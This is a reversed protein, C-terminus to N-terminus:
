HVLPVLIDNQCRLCYGVQDWYAGNLREGNNASPLSRHMSRRKRRRGLCTDEEIQKIDNADQGDGETEDVNDDEHEEYEPNHDRGGPLYYGYEHNDKSNGDYNDYYDYSANGVTDEESVQNHHSRGHNRNENNNNNNNDNDNDNDDDDNSNVGEFYENQALPNNNELPINNANGFHYGQGKYSPM